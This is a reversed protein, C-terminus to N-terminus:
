RGPGPRDPSAPAPTLPGPGRRALLALLERMGARGWSARLRELEGGAPAGVSAPEASGPCLGWGGLLGALDAGDVAGSNNFDCPGLGGSAGWAGLLALLDVVTVTGEPDACDGACPPPGLGLDGAHDLNAWVFGRRLRPNWFVGHDGLDPTLGWDNSTSEVAVRDGAPGDHGPSDQTNGGVALLWDNTPADFRTLDPALPDAGRLESEGFPIFATVTFQGDELSTTLALIVGIEGYGGAGPHLDSAVQTVVVSADDPGSANVVVVAASEMPDLDGGEPVLIVFEGQDLDDEGAAPKQEQFSGEYAGMDVSGGAVRPNRDLDVPLPEATDGDGDLDLVDPPLAADSGADVCPSGEALRLDHTGPQLFLPDADINGEGPWGGEIDCWVASAGPADALPPGSGWLICNVLSVNADTEPGSELPTGQNDSFSCNVIRTALTGSSIASGFGAANRSFVCNVYTSDACGDGVAAAVFGGQNSAFVSNFVRLVPKSVGLAGIANLSGNDSFTCGSVTLSGLGYSFVGGVASDATNGIFRCDQLTLHSDREFNLEYIAGGIEDSCNRITFGQITTPGGVDVIYFARGFGQRDIICREPGGAARIVIPAHVFGGGPYVGDAVVVEDGAAAAGIAAPISAKPGDPAACDPSTGSWADNGCARNVYYTTGARASAHGATVALLVVVPTRACRSWSM